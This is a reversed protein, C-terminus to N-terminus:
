ELIWATFVAEDLESHVAINSIRREGLRSGSLLITGHQQYNDWPAIFNPAENQANAFFAWQKVLHDAQDVYVHYKNQPTRGVSEFTLQLVDAPYGGSLTDEKLYQLTVGSDKLKFPMVLWYSDNIWMSLGQDLFYQLSDSEADYERTGKKATGQMTHINMLITLDSAPAEIRINGTHKDWWHNRAGFFTWQIYRTADWAARGGMALMV